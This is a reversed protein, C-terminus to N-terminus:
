PVHRTNLLFMKHLVSPRGNLTVTTSLPVTKHPLRKTTHPDDSLAATEAVLCLQQQVKGAVASSVGVCAQQYCAHMCISVSYM